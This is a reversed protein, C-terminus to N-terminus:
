ERKLIGTAEGNKLKKIDLKAIWKLLYPSTNGILEKGYGTKNNGSIRAEWIYSSSALSVGFETEVEM